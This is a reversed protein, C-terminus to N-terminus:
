NPGWLRFSHTYMRRYSHQLSGASATAGIGAVKLHQRHTLRCTSREPRYDWSSLLTCCQLGARNTPLWQLKLLVLYTDMAMVDAMRPLWSTAATFGPKIPRPQQHIAGRGTPTRAHCNRKKHQEQIFAHAHYM